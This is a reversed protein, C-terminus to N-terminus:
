RSGGDKVPESFVESPMDGYNIYRSSPDTSNALNRIEDLKSSLDISLCPNGTSDLATIVGLKGPQVSVCTRVPSNPMLYFIEPKPLEVQRDSIRYIIRAIPSTRSFVLHLVIENRTYSIFSYRKNLCCPDKPSLKRDAVKYIVVVSSGNEFRMFSQAGSAPQTCHMFLGTLISFYAAPIYKYKKM